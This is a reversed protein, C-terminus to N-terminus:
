VKVEAEESTKDSKVNMKNVADRTYTKVKDVDGAVNLAHTKDLFAQGEFVYVADAKLNADFVAKLQEKKM